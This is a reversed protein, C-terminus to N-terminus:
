AELFKRYSSHKKEKRIREQEKRRGEEKKRRGEEEKRRGESTAIRYLLLRM